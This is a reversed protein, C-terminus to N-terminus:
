HTNAEYIRREHGEATRASVIRYVLDEEEDAVTHAVVLLTVDGAKGITKWREEDDVERDQEMIFYPDESKDGRRLRYRAEESQERGEKRGM